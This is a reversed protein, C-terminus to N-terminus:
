LLQLMDQLSEEESDGFISTEELRRKIYDAPNEQSVDLIEDLSRLIPDDGAADTYAPKSPQPVGFQVELQKYAYDQNRFVDPNNSYMDELCFVICGELRDKPCLPGMGALDLMYNIQDTDMCLQIGLAILFIRSPVTHNKRLEAIKDYYKRLFYRNDRFMENPSHTVWTYEVMDLERFQLDIYAMLKAYASRFSPMLSMVKSCFETDDEPAIEGTGSDRNAVAYAMYTDMPTGHNYQDLYSDRLREYQAYYRQFLAKPNASGGRRLLHMWIMDEPHKPYLRQFKAWRTLMEDTEDVTMGLMMALMIVSRRDTPISTLFRAASKRGVGCGNAIAVKKLRKIKIKPQIFEAWQSYCQSHERVLQEFEELDECQGIKLRYINSDMTMDM